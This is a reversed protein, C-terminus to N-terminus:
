ESRKGRNLKLGCKGAIRETAAIRKTAVEAPRAMLVADDACELDLASMIPLTAMPHESQAEDEVEKMLIPLIPTCLCPSLTRGQRLGTQQEKHESKKGAM